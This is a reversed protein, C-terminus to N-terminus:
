IEKLNFQRKLGKGSNTLYDVLCIPYYEYVIHLYIDDKVVELIKAFENFQAMKKNVTLEMIIDTKVGIETKFAEM